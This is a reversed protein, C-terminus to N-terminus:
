NRRSTEGALLTLQKYCEPGLGERIELFMPARPLLGNRRAYILSSLSILSGFFSDMPKHNSMKGDPQLVVQHIHMGNLEAGLTEYWTSIPFRSSFPANNRAHGIDCHFGIDLGDISRLLEIQAKCEAPTYGFHRNFEGNDGGTMHMNEVGIKIGTNKLPTLATDFAERVLEKSTEFESLPMSPVHLTVRNCGLKVASICGNLLAEIGSAAGNAFGLAPLHSSLCRGGANRWEAVRQCLQAFDEPKWSADRLEVNRVNNAIAFDLGGFPDYMTSFGLDELFEDRFQETWEEPRITPIEYIASKHWGDANSEYFVIAPPGGIAKDPDLGRVVSLRPVDPSDYDLHTHGAVTLSIISKKCANQWATFSESGQSAPPVHTVALLNRGNLSTFANTDCWGNASDLLVVGAPLPANNLITKVRATDCPTRLEANGLTYAVPIDHKKFIAVLEEAERVTGTGLMDGACIIMVANQREAECISVELIQAKIRSGAIYHIDAFIAIKM